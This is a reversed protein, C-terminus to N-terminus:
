MRPLADLARRRVRRTISQDGSNVRISCHTDLKALTSQLHGVFYPALDAGLMKYPDAAIRSREILSQSTFSVFRYIQGRSAHNDAPRRGHDPEIRIGEAASGAMSAAEPLTLEGRGIRHLLDDPSAAVLLMDEVESVPCHLKQAIQGLSLGRVRALHRCEEIREVTASPTGVKPKERSECQGRRRANHLVSIITAKDIGTEQELTDADLEGGTNLRELLTQLCTKHTRVSVTSKM